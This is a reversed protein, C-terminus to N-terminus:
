AARADHAHRRRRRDAGARDRLEAPERARASRDRTIYYDGARGPYRTYRWDDGGPLQVRISVSGDITTLAIGRGNAPNYWAVDPDEVIPLLSDGLLGLRAPADIGMLDLVTPFIDTLSVIQNATQGGPQDPDVFIM